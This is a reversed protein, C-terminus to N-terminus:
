ELAVSRDNNGGRFYKAFHERVRVLERAALFNNRPFMLSIFDCPLHKNAKAGGKDRGEIAGVDL